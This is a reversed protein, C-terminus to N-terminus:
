DYVARESDSLQEVNRRRDAEADLGSLQRDDIELARMIWQEVTTRLLEESEQKFVKVGSTCAITLPGSVRPIWGTSARRLHVLHEEFEYSEDSPLALPRPPAYALARALPPPMTKLVLSCYNGGRVNQWGFRAMLAITKANELERDGTVIEVVKTPPHMRTWLAGRGFFHEAVRRLVDTSFGVYFRRDGCELTYVSM